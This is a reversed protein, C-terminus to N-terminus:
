ELSLAQARIQALVLDRDAAIAGSLGRADFAQVESEFKKLLGTQADIEARSGTALLADYQHFGASTAQVPDYKFVLEDFFRDALKNFEADRSQAWSAGALTFILSIRLLQM